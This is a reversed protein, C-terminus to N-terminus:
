PPAIDPRANRPDARPAMIRGGRNSLILIIRAPITIVEAKDRTEIRNKVYKRANVDTMFTSSADKKMNPKKPLAKQDMAMVEVVLYTSSGAFAPKEVDMYLTAVFRPTARIGVNKPTKKREEGAYPIIMVDTRTAAANISENKRIAPRIVAM